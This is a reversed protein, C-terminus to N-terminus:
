LWYAIRARFRMFLFFAIVASTCSILFTTVIAYGSPLTGLLPSRVIEIFQAVPNLKIAFQYKEPLMAPVWIIPTLFFVVQTLSTIVQAIDRYRTGIVALIFGLTIGNFLILFLGWLSLLSCFHLPVHFILIIPIFIVINHLFVIFNRAAMRFIFLSYPLKMQKLFNEAEAFIHSGETILTSILSWILMGAAFAPFYNDLRFRFLTGYLLGTMGITVGMSISIWFPGLSSRRYRLRIDQWALLFWTRWLFLGDKLDAFALNMRALAHSEQQSRIVITDM